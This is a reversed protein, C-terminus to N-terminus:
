EVFKCDCQLRQWKGDVVRVFLLMESTQEMANSNHIVFSIRFFLAVRMESDLSIWSKVANKRERKIEGDRTTTNNRFSRNFNMEFTLMSTINWTVKQGIQGRSEQSNFSSSTLSTACFRSDLFVNMRVRRWCIKANDDCQATPLLNKKTNVSKLSCVAWYATFASFIDDVFIKPHSEMWLRYTQTKHM